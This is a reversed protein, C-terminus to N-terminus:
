MSIYRENGRRIWLRGWVICNYSLAKNFDIDQQM